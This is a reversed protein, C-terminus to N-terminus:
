GATPMGLDRVIDAGPLEALLEGPLLIKSRRLGSGIVVLREDLISAEILVSWGDPLGLPTIGGFEMGSDDVARDRPLFSAKRVNMYRKVVGNVDARMSAPVVCAAVREEGDRKGSVLVCNGSASLPLDFAATLAATDALDPDIQVVGVQDNHKWGRLADRVPEALLDERDEVSEALLGHFEHAPSM